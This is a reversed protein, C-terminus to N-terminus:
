ATHKPSNEENPFLGAVEPLNIMVGRPDGSRTEVRYWTGCTPCVALFQFPNNISPQSIDLTTRCIPCGLKNLQTSRVTCYSLITSTSRSKNRQLQDELLPVTITLQPDVVDHFLSRHCPVIMPVMLKLSKKGNAV